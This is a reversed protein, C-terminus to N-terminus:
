ADAPDVDRIEVRAGGDDAATVTYSWGHLDAIRAVIALGLGTGHEDSSYGPTFVRDREPGPIGPGDDAVYFGTTPEDTLRGTTVHVGNRDGNKATSGHEVANRFLNAFLRGIRDPDAVVTPLSGDLTFTADSTDVTEWATRAVAGLDVEDDPNVVEEGRALTLVDQIIRDMQEHAQVVQELHTSNQQDREAQLHAKAVDLPNRLDHSVVSAVHNMSLTRPQHAPEPVGSFCLFGCAGAEPPVSQVVYRGGETDTSTVTVVFAGAEGLAETLAVDTEFSFTDAMEAVTTGQGVAGFRAEFESDVARVVPGGDEFTYSCVPGPYRDVPIAREDTDVM